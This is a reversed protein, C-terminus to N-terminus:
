LDLEQHVNAVIQFGQPLVADTPNWKTSCLAFYECWPCTDRGVTRFWRGKLQADRITQQIEWIEAMFEAVDQDLRPVEKRCFYQDPRTGIDASVRASWDDPAIPDTLLTWGRETDATQRPDGDVAGEKRQKATPEKFVRNGNVDVVIKLGNEDLRPVPCPKITPKRAVDYLVTDVAFGLERAAYQYLTVQHDLQLRRWFDSETAIDEGLLKHELVAQRGDELICIGDIKGALAFVTSPKGTEPNRLPIVFSQESALIRIPNDAWRWQWGAVMAAVTETELAWEYAWQPDLPRGTAYANRVRDVAAELGEGQKLLDLGDHYASGMRLAKAQDERRIAMEYAFFHKKRCTKFSAMRSHTILQKGNTTGNTSAV